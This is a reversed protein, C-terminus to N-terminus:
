KAQQATLWACLRNELNRLSDVIGLSKLCVGYPMANSYARRITDTTIGIIDMGRSHAIGLEVCTGSDIDQGDLLAVMLHKGEIGAVDTDFIHIADSEDTFHTDRHPLFTVIGLRMCTLDIQELYWREHVNFLPGAIYARMQNM